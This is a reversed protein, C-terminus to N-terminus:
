PPLSSFWKLIDGPPRAGQLRGAVTGGHLAVFAPIGAIRFREALRPSEETDIQV